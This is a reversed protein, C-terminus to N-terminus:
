NSRGQQPKHLHCLFPFATFLRCQALPWTHATFNWSHADWGSGPLAWLGRATRASNPKALHGCAEHSLAWRVAGIVKRNRGGELCLSIFQLKSEVQAGPAQGKREGPQVNHSSPKLCLSTQTGQWSQSFFFVVKKCTAEVQVRFKENNRKTDTCHARLFFVFHPPTFSHFFWLQQAIYFLLDMVPVQQRRM